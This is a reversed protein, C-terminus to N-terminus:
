DDDAEMMAIMQYICDGYDDLVLPPVNDEIWEYSFEEIVKDFTVGDMFVGCFAGGPEYWTAEVMEIGHMDTLTSYANVPPSWASEFSITLSTDSDRYIHADHIDWKTGWRSNAFEYWTPYGYAEENFKEAQRMQEQIAPNSNYGKVSHRLGEPMPVIHNLLSNREAAWEIGDLVSPEGEITLRNSCWNPM